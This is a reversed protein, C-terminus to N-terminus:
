SNATGVRTKYNQYNGVFLKHHLGSKREGVKPMEGCRMEVKLGGLGLDRKFAVRKCGFCGDAFNVVSESSFVFNQVALYISM